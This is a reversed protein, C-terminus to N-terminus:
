KKIIFKRWKKSIFNYIWIKKTFIISYKIFLIKIKMKFLKIKQFIINNKAYSKNGYLLSNIKKVHLLDKDRIWKLKTSKIIEINAFKIWKFLFHLNQNNIIQEETYQGSYKKSVIDINKSLKIPGDTKKIEDRENEYTMIDIDWSKHIWYAELVASWVVCYNQINKEKTIKLLEEINSFFNNSYNHNKRLNINRINNYSLFIKILHNNELNDDPSHLVLFKERQKYNERIKNKIKKIEIFDIDKIFLISLEKKYKNLQDTKELILDNNFLENFSYIDWIIWELNNFPIEDFWILNSKKNFIDLHKIIDNKYKNFFIIIKWWFYENYKRLIILRENLTFKNKKFWEYDWKCYKKNLIKFAPKIWFYICCSLRHAWWVIKWEKNIEIPYNKNFWKEKISTILNIFAKLFDESSKKNDENFWTRLWIHKLYLKKYFDVEKNEIFSHIFLIKVIIDLRENIYNM